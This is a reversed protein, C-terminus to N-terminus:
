KDNNIPSIIKYLDAKLNEIHGFQNGVGDFLGMYQGDETDVKIAMYVIYRWEKTYKHAAIFLCEKNFTPKDTLWTSDIPHTQKLWKICEQFGAVFFSCQDVTLEPEVIQSIKVAAVAADEISPLSCPQGESLISKIASAAGYEFHTAATDAEFDALKQELKTKNIKIYKDM